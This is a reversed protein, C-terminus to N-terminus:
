QEPPRYGLSASKAVAEDIEEPTILVVTKGTGRGSAQMVLYIATISAGDPLDMIVYMDNDGYAFYIAEVKGGVAEVMQEVIERRKTGGDMLLGRYGEVTYSGQLMYKAM